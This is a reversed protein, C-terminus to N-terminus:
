VAGEGGIVQGSAWDCRIEFDRSCAIGSAYVHMCMYVNMSPISFMVTCGRAGYGLAEPAKPSTAAIRTRVPVRPLVVCVM